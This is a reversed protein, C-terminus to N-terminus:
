TWGAQARVLLVNGKGAGGLLCFVRRARRCLLVMGRRGRARCRVRGEAQGVDPRAGVGAHVWLAHAVTISHKSVLVFYGGVTVVQGGPADICIVPAFPIYMPAVAGSFHCDSAIKLVIVVKYALPAGV